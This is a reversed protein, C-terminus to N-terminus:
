KIVKKGVSKCEIKQYSTIKFLKKKIQVTSKKLTIFPFEM